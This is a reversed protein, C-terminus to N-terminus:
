IFLVFIYILIRTHTSNMSQENEIRIKTILRKMWITKVKLDKSSSIITSRINVTTYFMDLFVM